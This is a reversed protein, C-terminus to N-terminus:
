LVTVAIDATDLTAIERSGIALSDTTFAGGPPNLRAQLVDVDTVGGVGFIVAYMRSVYVTNGLEAEQFYAALATKIAATAATPDVGDEYRISAQVELVRETPRSFNIVHAVGESDDVSESTGGHTDIGAAKSLFIASAIEGDDGGVVVVEIAHPPVGDGDTADNPNEFVRVQTVDDVARVDSRIAELTADGSVSLLQERRQRFAEDTETNRGLMADALNTAATWGAVPTEIQTLTGTNAPVPGYEEARFPVDAIGGSITAEELSVFRAGGPVVSVVRGVPLVTGNVGSTRVTVTSRVAELRTAGTIEAVRDLSSGTASSPYQSAYVAAAVEWLEALKSAVIGNLQGLVSQASTDIAPGLAGRQDDVIEQLIEELTKTEFGTSTLGAM